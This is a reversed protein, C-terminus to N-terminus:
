LSKVSNFKWKIHRSEVRVMLNYNVCIRMLAIRKM